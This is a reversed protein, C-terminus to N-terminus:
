KNFEQHFRNENVFGQLEMNIRKFSHCVLYRIGIFKGINSASILINYRQIHIYLFAFAFATLTARCHHRLSSLFIHRLAMHADLLSNLPLRHQTGSLVKNLTHAPPGHGPRRVRWVQVGWCRWDQPLITVTLFPAIAPNRWGRFSQWGGASCGLWLRSVQSNGLVQLLEIMPTGSLEVFVLLELQGLQQAGLATHERGLGVVKAAHLVVRICGTITKVVIVPYIHDYTDCNLM